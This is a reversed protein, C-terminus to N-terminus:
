QAHCRYTASPMNKAYYALIFLNPKIDGLISTLYIIHRWWLSAFRLFLVRLVWNCKCAKNWTRTLWECFVLAQKAGLEFGKHIGIAKSFKAILRLCRTTNIGGEVTRMTTVIAKPSVAVAIFDRFSDTITTYIIVFPLNGQKYSPYIISLSQQSEAFIM